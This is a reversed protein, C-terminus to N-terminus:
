TAAEASAQCSATFVSHLASFADCAAQQMLPIQALPRQDLAAVFAQWQQGSADGWGQLSRLSMCLDPRQRLQRHLVRAGLASGEVVYAAGWLHWEEPWSVKLSVSASITNLARLDQDLWRARAQLLPDLLCPAALAPSALLSRVLAYMGMLYQQYQRRSCTAALVHSMVATQEIRAHWDQTAQRLADRNSPFSHAAIM